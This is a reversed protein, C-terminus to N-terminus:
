WDILWSRNMLPSRARSWSAATLCWYRRSERRGCLFGRVQSLCMLVRGLVPPEPHTEELTSSLSVLGRHFNQWILPQAELRKGVPFHSVNESGCQWVPCPSSPSGEEEEERHLWKSQNGSWCSYSCGAVSLFSPELWQRWWLSHVGPIVALVADKLGEAPSWQFMAWSCADSTNSRHTMLEKRRSCSETRSLPSLSRWVLVSWGWERIFWLCKVSIVSRLSLCSWCLDLWPPLRYLANECLRGVSLWTM